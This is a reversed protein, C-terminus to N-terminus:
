GRSPRADLLRCGRSPRPAASGVILGPGSARRGGAPQAPAAAARTRCAPTAGCRCSRELRRDQPAGGADQPDTITGDGRRDPDAMRRTTRGAIAPLEAVCWPCITWGPEVLSSCQPCPIRLTSGCGPCRVWGEDVRADCVSCRDQDAAAELTALSLRRDMADALTEQPRILRYVVIGLPFALPTAALVLVAVGAPALRNDVRLRADRFAWAAAAIWLIVLCAWTVSLIAQVQPTAIVTGFAAIADDFLKSMIDQGAHTLHTSMLSPAACTRGPGRGDGARSMTRANVGPGPWGARRSGGNRRGGSRRSGVRLSAWSAIPRFRPHGRGSSRRCISPGVTAAHRCPAPM